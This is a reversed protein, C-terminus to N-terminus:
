IHPNKQKKKLKPTEMLRKQYSIRFHVYFVPLHFGSQKERGTQNLDSCYHLKKEQITRLMKRMLMECGDTEGTKTVETWFGTFQARLEDMLGAEM